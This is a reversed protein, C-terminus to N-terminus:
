KKKKKARATPEAILPNDPWFHKPYRGMLDKKVQLYTNAWFSKLDDTIQVPRNAPSLLHLMVPLTNGAVRPTEILSFMEQLRVELVPKELIKDGDAYRLPKKSGSPVVIHTPANKEVENQQEWTFLSYIAPKIDLKKLQSFSHVNQIFPKLWKDLHNILYPESLDPLDNFREQGRLFM